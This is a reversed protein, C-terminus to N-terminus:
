PHKEGVSDFRLVGGVGGSKVQQRRVPLFLNGTTGVVYIDEGGPLEM